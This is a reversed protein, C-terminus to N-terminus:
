HFLSRANKLTKGSHMEDFAKTLSDKIMEHQASVEQENNALRELALSVQEQIWHKLSQEDAFVPRVKDVLSDNLTISYTCM